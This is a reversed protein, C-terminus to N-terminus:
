AAVDETRVQGSMLLPLLEDRADELGAEALESSWTSELLAQAAALAPHDSGPAPFALCEVVDIPLNAVTTGRVAGDLVARVEPQYLHAWLPLRLWKHEPKFDVLFMHHTFLAASVDSPVLLPWGIIEQRWTQETNTIILDGAHTLHRPKYEGVYYKWGSRKLWGFNAASGMNVM